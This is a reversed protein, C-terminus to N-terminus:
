AGMKGRRLGEKFAGFIGQWVADEEWAVEDTQWELWEEARVGSVGKQEGFDGEVVLLGAAVDVMDAREACEYSVTAGCVSCFTRRVNASSAYSKATGYVGDAPYTAHPQGPSTTTIASRLPFIWSVLFSSSTLRCSHCADHVAFLKTKDHPVVTQDTQSFSEPGTPRAISLSIGGCHCRAKPAEDKGGEKKGLANKRSPKWEGDGKDYIEMKRGRFEGFLTALGGDRTGGVFFHAGFSWVEEEADVLSVAVYWKEEQGDKDGTGARDVM